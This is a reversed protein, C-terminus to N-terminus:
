GHRRSIHSNMAVHTMPSVAVVLLFGRESFFTKVITLSEKVVSM